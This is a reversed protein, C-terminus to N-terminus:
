KTEEEDNWTDFDVAKTVMTAEWHGQSKLTMSRLFYINRIDFVNPNNCM